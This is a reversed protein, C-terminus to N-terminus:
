PAVATEGVGTLYAEQLREREIAFDAVPL